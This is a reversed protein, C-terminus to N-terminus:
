RIRAPRPASIATALEDLVEGAQAHRALYRDRDDDGRGLAAVAIDSLAAPAHLGAWHRDVRGVETLLQHVKSTETDPHWYPDAAIFPVGAQLALVVSHFRSVVVLDYGGFAEGLAAADPQRLCRVPAGGLADAFAASAAADDYMNDVAIFEVTGIRQLGALEAALRASFARKPDIEDAAFERGAIEVADLCTTRDFGSERVYRLVIRMDTFLGLLRSSAVAEGVAVGICPRRGGPAPAQAAAPAAARAPLGFAPDPVVRPAPAGAQRFRDAASPARVTFFDLREALERLYDHWQPKSAPRTTDDLGVGYWAALVGPDFAAPAAGLTFAQMLVNAFPPGAFVGGVIVIADFSGAGPWDGSPSVWLPRVPGGDPAWPCYRTFEAGPLRRGLGAEVADFLMQDGVNCLSAGGWLAIRIPM